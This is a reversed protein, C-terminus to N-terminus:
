ENMHPEHQEGCVMYAQSRSTEVLDFLTNILAHMDVASLSKAWDAKFKEVDPKPMEGPHAVCFEVATVLVMLTTIGMM